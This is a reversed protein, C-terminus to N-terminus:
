PDKLGDCCIGATAPSATLKDHIIFRLPTLRPGLQIGHAQGGIPLGNTAQLPSTFYLHPAPM